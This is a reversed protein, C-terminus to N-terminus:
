STCCSTVTQALNLPNSPNVYEMFSRRRNLNTVQYILGMWNGVISEATDHWTNHLKHVILHEPFPPRPQGLHKAEMLLDRYENLIAQERPPLYHEPFPPLKCLGDAFRFLERKYEKLLSITDYEPHGQFFVMRFGDQSVALHVGVDQSYALVRAGAAEFQTCSIDNWRSHPVDFQTNVDKVLPHSRDCLHHSFVGWRKFKQLVRRQKYRSELVAHTALCSCLTSTVNEYAWDIVHNLPEWFPEISLNPHTVNAGTIILADLGDTKIQEFEEYYRSIHAQAEPGRKLGALTFPHMYFQAIPNSEGVLRFFQRETADLAKDPMMNLLGIHLERIDQRHARELDLITQGEQRLRKFSPLDNHAVLPM